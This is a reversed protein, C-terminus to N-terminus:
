ITGASRDWLKLDDSTAHDAVRRLVRLTVIAATLGATALAVVSYIFGVLMFLLARHWLRTRRRVLHNFAVVMADRAAAFEPCREAAQDEVHRMQDRWARKAPDMEIAVSLKLFRWFCDLAHLEQHMSLLANSARYLNSWAPDAERMRGSVILRVLDDRAAFLPFRSTERRSRRLEVLVSVHYTLAGALAALGSVLSLLETTEV